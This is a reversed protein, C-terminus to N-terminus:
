GESSLSFDLEEESNSENPPSFVYIDLEKKQNNNREYPSQERFKGTNLGETRESILSESYPSFFVQSNHEFQPETIHPIDNTNKAKNRASFEKYKEELENKLSKNTIEIENIEKEKIEILEMKKQINEEFIMYKSKLDNLVKIYMKKKAFM